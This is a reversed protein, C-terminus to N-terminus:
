DIRENKFFVYAPLNEEDLFTKKLRPVLLKRSGLIGGAIVGTSSIGIIIWTLPNKFILNSSGNSDPSEGSAERYDELNETWFMKKIEYGTFTNKQIGELQIGQVNLSYGRYIFIMPMLDEMIYRQIENYQARRLSPNIEARAEDLLTQLYSDNVQVTNGISANSYLTDLIDTPDNFYAGFGLYFLNLKSHHTLLRDLYDNWTIEEIDIKIGIKAACSQMLLALNERPNGGSFNVTYNFTAIASNETLNLWWEDNELNNSANAPVLDADILSQRAHSVNCTPYAIDPNHYMMGEMIPSNIGVRYGETQQEIAQSYNFAWSLAQRLTRNIWQNNLGIYIFANSKIPTGFRHFSSNEFDTKFEMLSQDILDLKCDVFDQNKSVADDYYIYKIEGVYSAPRSGAWEEYATLRIYDNTQERYEYPGTGILVDQSVSLLREEPTSDSSLIYSGSFCLLSPLPAYPYNLRFRVSYEGIIQVEQIVFPTAPYQAACPQYVEALESFNQSILYNLREFTWKVSNANFPSGDHFRIDSKLQVTYETAESNWTGLSAALRPIIAYESDNSDYEFLGECVQSIVEISSSDWANQPDLNFILTGTGITLIESTQDIQAVGRDIRVSVLILCCLLLVYKRRQHTITNATIKAVM